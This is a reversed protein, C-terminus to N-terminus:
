GCRLLTHQGVDAADQLGGTDRGAVDADDDVAGREGGIRHDFAFAGAGCQDGGLAKAVHDRHAVFATVVLVVQVDYQRFRQHRAVQAQGYGFTEVVFAVDEQREVSGSDSGNYRDELAFADFANRDAEEVGEDIRHVFAM